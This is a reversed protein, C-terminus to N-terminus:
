LLSPGLLNHLTKILCGWFATVTPCDFFVHDITGPCWPCDSTDWKKWKHLQQPM